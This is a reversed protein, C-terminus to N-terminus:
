DPQNIHQLALKVSRIVSAWDGMAPQRFLRMVEPYWPSDNRATLWRWDTKYYPLLVWCPKGLAGALHAVATDVSIVLDLNMLVAATDAFDHLQAGLKLVPFGDPPIDDEGQGKQLSIFRIGAIEALPALTAISPLSRDADNEYRPNGKWVLGVQLGKRPLSKAWQQVSQPDPHLYPLTAPISNLETQCYCPVSLLPAWFDRHEPPLEEDFGVITDVAALSGFLKKLGPHCLLTIRRAGLKKIEAAYRCFQIIDGQGAEGVLLIHAGDLTEGHWRPETMRSAFRAYANSADLCAWGEPFRGQRLLIYSLNLRANAYEPDLALAQRYCTEAQAEQQMSAYLVGLNSWVDPREPDLDRAALYASEAETFRKLGALLVGLNLHIQTLEPDLRLAHRYALEAAVNAGQRELALGRNAHLEALDPALQLAAEFCNQAGRADGVGLLRNGEVFLAEVKPFHTM